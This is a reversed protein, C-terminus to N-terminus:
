GDWPDVIGAITAALPCSPQHLPCSGPPLLPAAARPPYRPTGPGPGAPGAAGSRHLCHDGCAKAIPGPVNQQSCHRRHRGTLKPSATAPRFPSPAPLLKFTRTRGQAPRHIRRTTILSSTLRLYLPRPSFDRHRCPYGIHLHSPHMMMGYVFSHRRTPRAALWM